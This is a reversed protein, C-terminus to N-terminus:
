KNSRESYTCQDLLVIKITGPSSLSSDTNFSSNVSSAPSVASPDTLNLAALSAITAPDLAGSHVLDLQFYAGCISVCFHPQRKHCSLSWQSMSWHSQQGFGSCLKGLDFLQICDRCTWNARTFSMGSVACRSGRFHESTQSLDSQYYNNYSRFVILFGLM